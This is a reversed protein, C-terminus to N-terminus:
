SERQDDPVLCGRDAPLNELKLGVQLCDLSADCLFAIDLDELVPSYIRDLPILQALNEKEVWTVGTNEAPDLNSAEGAVFDCRHYHCYVNTIPHLRTGLHRVHVCHIGTEALTEAVAVTSSQVGPKVVGAPFQWPADSTGDRRSVVLVRTRRVVIAVAVRLVHAGGLRPTDLGASIPLSLLHEIDDDFIRELLRATAPRLRSARAVGAVLRQLHRLSLTGEEDNERAFIEVFSVFEDFTQKRDRIRQELVTRVAVGPSASETATHRPMGWGDRTTRDREQRGSPVRM